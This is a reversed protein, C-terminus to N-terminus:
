GSETAKKRRSSGRGPAAVRAAIVFQIASSVGLVYMIIHFLIGPIGKLANGMFM